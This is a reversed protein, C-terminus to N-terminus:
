TTARVRLRWRAQEQGTERTLVLASLPEFDMAHVSALPANLVGALAAKVVIAHTVIVCRGAQAQRDLGAMVRGVLAALSEGNRPAGGAGDLWALLGEPDEDYVDRIARGQWRGYDLDDFLADIAPNAEFAAATERAARAPSTVVRREATGLRGALTALAAAEGPDVPDDASPFRGTKMARTAAHCLLTVDARTM